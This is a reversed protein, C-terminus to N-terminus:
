DPPPTPWPWEHDEEGRAHGLLVHKWPSPLEGVLVEILNRGGRAIASGLHQELEDPSDARSASFGFSRALEVFNPSTLDSAILRGGYNERQITRVNGYANDNMVIINIPIDHHVATALEGITFLAGGDGTVSVVAVDRRADAAGIAAAIGWGLTGQYGTSLFSRPFHKPFAFRSVYGIQTLEDVFIADDPMAMRIAALWDLQPRLEADIAANVKDRAMDMRAQWDDRPGQRPLIALLRPLADALDAHVGIDSERSGVLADADIDIHIVRIGDDLGWLNKQQVLRTGLGIVLDCEPWVAHATPNDLCLSDGTPM